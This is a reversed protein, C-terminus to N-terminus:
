PTCRSYNDYISTQTTSPATIFTGAILQIKLNDIPVLVDLSNFTVWVNGDSSTLADIKPGVPNYQFRWFRDATGDYAIDLADKYTGDVQEEAYLRGRYYEIMYYNRIDLVLQFLTEQNGVDVVKPVEVSANNGVFSAADLTYAWAYCDNGADSALVLTGNTVDSQCGPDGGLGWHPALDNNTGSFMEVFCTLAADPPADLSADPERVDMGAVETLHFLGDCGTLLALM